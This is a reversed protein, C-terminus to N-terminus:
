KNQKINDLLRTIREFVAQESGTGDIEFLKHQKKYYEVVPLTDQRYIELRTSVKADDSREETKARAKIRQKVEEDPVQLFLVADLQYGYQPLLATLADAQPIARPFGDFLFGSTDAHLLMQDKVLQMVIDHPALQGEDLYRKLIKGLEQGRQIMERMLQGPIVPTLYYKEVIKEGQTGKGAGPPGLLAINLM